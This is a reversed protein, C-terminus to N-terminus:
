HVLPSTAAPSARDVVGTQALLELSNGFSWKRVIKGDKMENVDVLHLNVSHGTAQAPGLPGSNIGKLVYEEIAFPGVGWAYKPDQSFQSLGHTITKFYKRREEKGRVPGDHDLRFVEVDDAFPALFGAENKAELADYSANLIAINKQEQDNGAAVFVEPSTALTVSPASVDAGKPAAGLQALVAGVDMYLHMDKILGNAQFWLITLGKIGVQKGTPKIGMYDGSQMAQMDWAVIAADEALWIDRAAYKRDSFAAFADGLAKLMGDRDSADVMGPSFSFDADPDFLPTLAKFDGGMARNVADVAEREKEAHSKEAVAPARAGADQYLRPDVSAAPPQEIDSSGCAGLAPGCALVTLLLVARKTFPLTRPERTHMASTRFTARARHL